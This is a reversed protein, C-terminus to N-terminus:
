HDQDDIRQEKFTVVVAYALGNGVGVCERDRQRVQGCLWLGKPFLSAIHSRHWQASPVGFSESGYVCGIDWLYPWFRGM